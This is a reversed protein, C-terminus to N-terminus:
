RIRSPDGLPEESLTAIGEYRLFDTDTTEEGQLNLSREIDLWDTYDIQVAIPKESKDTLSRTRIKRM